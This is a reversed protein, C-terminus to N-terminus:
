NRRPSTRIVTQSQVSKIASLDSVVAASEDLVVDRGPNRTSDPDHAWQKEIKRITDTETRFATEQLSVSKKRRIRDLVVLDQLYSQYVTSRSSRDRFKMRLAAIDGNTVDGQPKFFARSISSWPLSSTYTDEGIKATDILSPM